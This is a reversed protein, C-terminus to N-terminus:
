PAPAESAPMEPPTYWPADIPSTPLQGTIEPTQMPQQAGDGTVSKGFQDWLTKMWGQTTQGAANTSGSLGSGVMAGLGTIQSLPSSGYVGALPGTYKETVSTPVQYGRLLAATNTAQKLPADILAQNYTQQEAGAKTMAGAGTLGLEQESKALNGQTQAVQNQLQANNLAAQLAESYGKSLAGYQQGTLDKQVDSMSQGLATAYRSSGLGGTGVFGAKMAPMLNRQVNQQSLREMEDVVNHTYPNMMGQINQPTIGQAAQGATQEAAALGPQYATAAGPVAAYGQTQLATLPAVLQDNPRDLAEQGAGAISSLYDTFYQPAETVNSKTTNVDPAVTGQFINAM